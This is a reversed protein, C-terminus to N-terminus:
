RGEVSRMGGVAERVGVEKAAAEAKAVAEGVLVEVQWGRTHRAEEPREILSM